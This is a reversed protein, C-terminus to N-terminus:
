LPTNHKKAIQEHLLKQPRNSNSHHFNSSYKAATSPLVHNFMNVNTTAIQGYGSDIVLHAQCDNQVNNLDGSVIIRDYDQNVQDYFNTSTSPSHLKTRNSNIYKRQADTHHNVDSEIDGDEGSSFDSKLSLASSSDSTTFSNTSRSRYKQNSKIRNKSNKGSQHFRKKRTSHRHHQHPQKLSSTLVTTKFAQNKGTNSNLLSKKGEDYNNASQHIDQDEKMKNRSERGPVPPRQHLMNFMEPNNDSSGSHDKKPNKLSNLYEYYNLIAEQNHKDTSFNGCNLAQRDSLDMDINMESISDINISHQVIPKPRVIKNNKMIENSESKLQNMLAFDLKDTFRTTPQQISISNKPQIIDSKFKSSESIKMMATPSISWSRGSIEPKRWCTEAPSQRYSRMLASSNTFPRQIQQIFNKSHIGPKWSDLAPRQNHTSNKNVIAGNESISELANKSPLKNTFQDNADVVNMFMEQPLPPITSPKKKKRKLAPNLRCNFVGPINKDNISSNGDANMHNLNNCLSQSHQNLFPITNIAFPLLKPDMDKHNMAFTQTQNMVLQDLLSKEKISIQDPRSSLCNEFDMTKGTAVSSCQISNKLNRIHFYRYYICMFIVGFLFSGFVLCIALSRYGHVKSLRNDFFMSISLLLINEAFMMMYFALMRYRSHNDEMNVFCFVYIWALASAGFLKKKRNCKQHTTGDAHHDFHQLMHPTLLWLLMSFWHLFIVVFVWQEYLVAYVTLAVIRSTITGVRWFFQFIVGFWTLVLRHIKDPRINKNFSSLAWCISFLSLFISIINLDTIMNLSPKRWVLYTQLLLMPGAQFFAHVMRLICLESVERKVTALNVPAFLKFYRWLVGCQLLHIIIMMQSSNDKWRDPHSMIHNASSCHQNPKPDNNGYQERIDRRYWRYSLIQSIIATMLILFLSVSLWTFQRNLYLTYATVSDFVVDCFYAALSIINFLLDCLPLFEIRNPYFVVQQNQKPIHTPQRPNTQLIENVAASNVSPANALLTQTLQGQRLTIAIDQGVITLSENGFDNMANNMSPPSESFNFPIQPPPQQNTLTTNIVTPETYINANCDSRVENPQQQQDDLQSTDLFVRALRKSDKTAIM